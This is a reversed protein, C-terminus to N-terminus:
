SRRVPLGRRLQALDLRTETFPRYRPREPRRASPRAPPAAGDPGDRQVGPARRNPAFSGARASDTMHVCLM